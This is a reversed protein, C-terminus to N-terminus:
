SHDRLRGCYVAEERLCCGKYKEGEEEQIKEVVDEVVFDFDEDGTKENGINGTCGKQDHAAVGSESGAAGPTAARNM